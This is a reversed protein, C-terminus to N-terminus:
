KQPGFLEGCRSTSQLGVTDKLITASAIKGDASTTIRLECSMEVVNGGHVQTTTNRGITTQTATVPTGVSSLGSNWTYATEGNALAQKEHAAGNNREFTKYQVGVLQSSVRTSIEQTSACASLFVLVAPALRIM